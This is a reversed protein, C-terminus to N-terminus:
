PPPASVGEFLVGTDLLGVLNINTENLSVSAALELLQGQTMGGQLQAVYGALTAADPEAGVVNRYLTSVFDSANLNLLQAVMMCVQALSQGSDFLGLGIGVWDPHARIAAADFAAGIVRVTNGAAEDLALDFALKKDPFQFREIGTYDASSDSDLVMFGTATRSISHMTSLRYFAATDLGPGGDITDINHLTWLTDNGEGGYLSDIGLGGDIVDNGALGYIIDGQSGGKIVDNGATGNILAM